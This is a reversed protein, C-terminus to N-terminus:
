TMMAVYHLQELIICTVHIEGGFRGKILGTAPGSDGQMSSDVNWIYGLPVFVDAFYCAVELELHDTM